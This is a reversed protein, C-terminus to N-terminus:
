EQHRGQGVRIEVRPKSGDPPHVLLGMDRVHSDDKWVVGTLADEICKTFNGCDRRRNDPQHFEMRYWLPPETFHPREGRVQDLAVSHISQLAHKYSWSHARGGKRTNRENASALCEWPITLRIM